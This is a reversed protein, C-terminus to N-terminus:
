CLDGSEVDGKFVSQSVVVKYESGPIIDSTQEVIAVIMDPIGSSYYGNKGKLERVCDRMGGLVFREVSLSDIIDNLPFMKKVINSPFVFSIKKGPDRIDQLVVNYFGM